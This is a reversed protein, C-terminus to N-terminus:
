TVPQGWEPSPRPPNLMDLTSRFWFLPLFPQSPVPVRPVKIRIRNPIKIPVRPKVPVVIPVDVPKDVPKPLPADALVQYVIMGPEPSFWVYRVGDEAWAGRTGPNGSGGRHAGTVGFSALIRIYGDLQDLTARRSTGWELITKIEYLDGTAHNYIDPRPFGLYKWVSWKTGIQDAIKSIRTDVFIEALDKANSGLYFFTIISHARNGLARSSPPLKGAAAPTAGEALNVFTDSEPKEISPEPNPGATPDGYIDDPLCGEEPGFVGDGASPAFGSPDTYNLPNNFVYAYRDFGQTDAQEHRLPDASAFRAVRPDYLRGGMDILGADLTARHGTFGVETRQSDGYVPGGDLVDAFPHPGGWADFRMRAVVGGGAGTVADGSGLPDGHVYHVTEVEGGLGPTRRVRAVVRGGLRVDYFHTGPQLGVTVREYLGDIMITDSPANGTVRRRVRQQHADYSLEITEGPSTITRAKGFPTSTITTAGRTKLNGTQDYGYSIGGALSVATPRLAKYEYAGVGSRSLITGLAGYTVDDEGLLIPQAGFQTTARVGVLRDLEDYEYHEDLGLREDIRDTVQGKADRELRLSQVQGPVALTGTQLTALRLHEYTTVTRLGNGARELEPADYPTTALLRWFEAGTQHNRLAVLNGWADYDHRVVFPTASQPYRLQHLRGHADYTTVVDFSTGNVTTRAVARRAFADYQYRREVGDPSLASRLEGPAGWGGSAGWAWTTVVPALAGQQDVREVERGVADYTFTAVRQEADTVRRLEGYANYSATVPGREPDDERTLRGYADVQRAIVYGDRTPGPTVAPETAGDCRTPANVWISRTSGFSGYYYCLQGGLHDTVRRVRGLRDHERRTTHLRPDTEVVRVGERVWTTTGGGPEVAEVVRGLEDHEFSWYGSPAVNLLAPVSQSTLRGAADYGMREYRVAGNLGTWSRYVPRGGRDHEVTTSAGGAITEVWRLRSPAAPDNVADLREYRIAREGGEAGGISQRWSAIPRGFGDYRVHTDVGAASTTTQLLGPGRLWASSTSDGVADTVRVVFQREVEDYKTTSWREPEVGGLGDAATVLVDVLNGTADYHHDTTRRRLPDDPEVVERRLRGSPWFTQTRNRFQSGAPSQSEIRRTRELGILWEDTLNDFTAWEVTRFGDGRDVARLVVNGYDDRDSSDTVDGLPPGAALVGVCGQGTELICVTAVDWTRVRRTQLDVAVAHEAPFRVDYTREDLSLLQRQEDILRTTTVITAPRMAEIGLWTRPSDAGVPAQDVVYEFPRYYTHTTRIVPGAGFRESAVTEIFGLWTRRAPDIISGEYRYTTIHPEAAAATDRTVEAVLPAATRRCRYAAGWDWPGIVCDDLQTFVDPDAMHSYAIEVHDGFGDTIGTLLNPVSPRAYLRWEGDDHLAVGDQGNGLLDLVVAHADPDDLPFSTPRVEGAVPYRSLAVWFVDDVVPNPPTRYPILLDDRGDGDHDLVVADAFERCVSDRRQFEALVPGATFGGGTNLWGRAVGQFPTDGQDCADEVWVNWGAETIAPEYRILDVLGDGNLDAQHDLTHGRRGTAARTFTEYPLGTPREVWNGGDDLYHAVYEQRVGDFFLLNTTGDGDVDVALWAPEGEENGSRSLRRCVKGSDVGAGPGGQSGLDIRWTAERMPCPLQGATCVADEEEGDSFSTELYCGPEVLEPDDSVEACDEIPLDITCWARDARGDGDFDGGAVALEFSEEDFDTSLISLRDAGDQELDDVFAFHGLEGLEWVDFDLGDGGGASRYLRWTDGGLIALDERGDGNYDLRRAARVGHPSDEDLAYPTGDWAQDELRMHGTAPAYTFRTPPKCVGDSGCERLEEVVGRRASKDSDGYGLRYSRVLEGDPGLSDIRALRLDLTTGGGSKFHALRDEAPRPLYSFIVARRPELGVNGTYDIRQPRHNVHNDTFGVGVVFLQTTEHDYTVTLYNGDRDEVRRLWWAQVEGRVLLNSGPSGGYTLIRGDRTRVEFGSQGVGGGLRVIRSADDQDRRFVHDGDTTVQPWLRDGDLCLPDADDFRHPLVQGDQAVTRKCRHISSLGGISWGHGLLGAGGGSDYILALEPQIGGRGPALTLPVRYRAAGADTVELTGAITGVPTTVAAAERATPAIAPPARDAPEDLDGCAASWSCGLLLVFAHARIM